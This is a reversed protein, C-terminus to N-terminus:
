RVPKDVKPVVRVFTNFLYLERPGAKNRHFYGSSVGKKEFM